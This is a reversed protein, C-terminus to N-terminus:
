LRRWRHATDRSYKVAILLHYTFYLDFTVCSHMGTPHTSGARQGYGMTDSQLLPPQGAGGMCVGQHLAGRSTSGGGVLGGGRPLGEGQICVGGGHAFPIVYAQSVLICELLIRVAWENVM